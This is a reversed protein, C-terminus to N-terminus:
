HRSVTLCKKCNYYKDTHADELFLYPKDYYTDIVDDVQCGNESSDEFDLDHIEKTKTNALYREGRMKGRWRRM